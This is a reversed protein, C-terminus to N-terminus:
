SNQELEGLYINCKLFHWHKESHIYLHFGKLICKIILHSAQLILLPKFKMVCLNSHFHFNFSLAKMIAYQAACLGQHFTQQVSIDRTTKTYTPLTKVLLKISWMCIIKHYLWSTNERLFQLTEKIHEVWEIFLIVVWSQLYKLLLKCILEFIFASLNQLLRRFSFCSFVLSRYHSQPQAPLLCRWSCSSWLPVDCHDAFSRVETKLLGLATM